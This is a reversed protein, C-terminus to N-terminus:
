NIEDGFNPDNSAECALMREHLLRFKLDIRVLMAHGEIWSTYRYRTKEGCSSTSTYRGAYHTCAKDDVVEADAISPRNAKISKAMSKFFNRDMTAKGNNKNHIQQDSMDSTAKSFDTNSKSKALTNTSGVSTNSESISAFTQDSHTRMIGTLTQKPASNELVVIIGADVEEEVRVNTMRHKSNQVDRSSYDRQFADQTDISSTTTSLVGETNMSMSKTPHALTVGPARPARRTTGDDGATNNRPPLTVGVHYTSM